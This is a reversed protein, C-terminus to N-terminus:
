RVWVRNLGLYPPFSRASGPGPVYTARRWASTAQWFAAGYSTQLFWANEPNMPFEAAVSVTGESASSIRGVLGSPIGGTAPPAFLKALHATLMNLLTLQVTPDLVPGTGDNRLYLTAMDFYSQALPAAIYAFEPYTAIWLDYNFTVEACPTM